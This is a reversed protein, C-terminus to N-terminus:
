PKGNWNSHAMQLVFSSVQVFRYADRRQDPETPAAPSDHLLLKFQDEPLTLFKELMIGQAGCFRRANHPLDSGSQNAFTTCHLCVMWSLVNKESLGPVLPSADASYIGDSYYLKTSM